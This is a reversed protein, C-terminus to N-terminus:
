LRSFVYWHCRGEVRDGTEPIHSGPRHAPGRNARPLQDTRALRIKWVDQREASSLIEGGTSDGRKCNIGTAAAPAAPNPNAARLRRLRAFPYHAKLSQLSSSTQTPCSRCSRSQFTLKRRRSYCERRQFQRAGRRRHSPLRAQFRSILLHRCCTSAVRM